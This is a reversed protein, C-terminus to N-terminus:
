LNIRNIVALEIPDCITATEAILAKLQAKYQEPVERVEAILDTQIMSFTVNTDDMVREM